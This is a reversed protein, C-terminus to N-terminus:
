RVESQLKIRFTNEVVGPLLDYISCGLREEFDGQIKLYAKWRDLTRISFGHRLAVDVFRKEMLCYGDALSISDCLQILRDYDDYQTEAMYGAIFELEAPTCDWHGEVARIDKIPFSHTICIRAADEYGLQALFHYGDLVHRMASVGARRGIDHLLGLVYASGAELGPLRGAIARAAEAASYSHGVWPGPNCGEAERVFLQAQDLTPIKM